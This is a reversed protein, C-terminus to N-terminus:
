TRPEKGTLRLSVSELAPRTTWRDAALSAPVAGPCGKTLGESVALDSVAALSRPFGTPSGHM